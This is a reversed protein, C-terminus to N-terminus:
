GVVPVSPESNGSLVIDAAAHIHHVGTPAVITVDAVISDAELESAHDSGSEVSELADTRVVRWLEGGLRRIAAVENEFRVDAVVLRYGECLMRTASPAWKNIWWDRNVEGRFLDTGVFQMLWRSFGDRDTYLKRRWFVRPDISHDFQDKGGLEAIYWEPPCALLAHLLMEKLPTSFSPPRTYGHRAVLHDALTDKGHRAKGLIGIILPLM